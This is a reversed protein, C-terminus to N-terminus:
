KGNQEALWARNHEIINGPAVGLGLDLGGVLVLGRSGTPVLGWSILRVAGASELRLSWTRPSGHAAPTQTVRDQFKQLVAALDRAIAGDDAGPRMPIYVTAGGIMAVAPRPVDSIIVWPSMKALLRDLATATKFRWADLSNAFRARGDPTRTAGYTAAGLDIWRHASNRSVMIFSGPPPPFPIEAVPWFSETLALRHVAGGKNGPAPPPESRAEWTADIALLPPGAYPAPKQNRLAPPIPMAPDRRAVDLPAIWRGHLMFRRANSLNWANLLQAVKGDGVLVPLARRLANLDAFAELFVAGPPRSEAVAQRHALWTSPQPVGAKASSELWRPLAGRGLAITFAGPRSVWSLEQQATWDPETYSVGTLGGPLKLPSQTGRPKTSQPDRTNNPAVPAAPSLIAEITRIHPKHDAPDALELIFALPAPDDTTASLPLVCLTHPVRGVVSAALLGKAIGGADDGIIGSAALARLLPELDTSPAAASQFGSPDLRWWLLASTPPEPPAAFSPAAFTLLTSILLAIRTM